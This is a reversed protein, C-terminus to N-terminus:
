KVHFEIRRNKARGEPTDNSTIPDQSGKGAVTFRKEYIGKKVFWDKVAQARALSLKQNAGEKGQNDTYGAIEVELEKNDMLANYLQNLTAESEKKLKASGMGFTIGGLIVSTGKQLIVEPKPEPRKLLRIVSDQLAINALKLSDITSDRSRLEQEFREIEKNKRAVFGPLSDLPTFYKEDDATSSKSSKCGSLVVAGAGTCLILVLFLRKMNLYRM